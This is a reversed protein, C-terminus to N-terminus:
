WTLGPIRGLARDLEARRRGIQALSEQHGLEIEHLERLADILVLFTSRGATYASRAATVQEAAAPLLRDRVLQEAQRAQELLVSASQVALRVDDEVAVRRQRTGEFDAQSEELAARRRGLQLPM